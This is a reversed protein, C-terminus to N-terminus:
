SIRGIFNCYLAKKDSLKKIETKCFFEFHM